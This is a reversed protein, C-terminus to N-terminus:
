TEVLYLMKGYQFTLSKSLTRLEQWAFIDDHESQSESVPRYLNKPYQPAKAFRRNFDQIFAELWANAEEIGTINELRMEKILRDQLTQNAREVRGKAQSSNACILDINLDHLVRGFQTTGTRRTEAQSVRFVAHKDSYFAVPKGHKDLYERTALMYDFASETECFRLHMLRGTADDMYVLLCCKSARGEFWDHHSGDIQILEGLCDHRYRPQYVRPKRRTHPVWLGAAIMWHRLTEVSVKLNHRQLLKEAALTPGFDSYKERLLTLVKMRLQEPLNNNGPKGRKLSALGSTGSLRFKDMLRQIQRESLDLQSAADRRRLRKECIAQIIQARVLEKESMTVLM